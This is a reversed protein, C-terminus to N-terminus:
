ESFEERKQENIGSCETKLDFYGESLAALVARDPMLAARVFELECAVEIEEKIPVIHSIRLSVPRQTHKPLGQVRKTTPPAVPTVSIM